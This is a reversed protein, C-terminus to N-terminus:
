ILYYSFAYELVELGDIGWSGMEPGVDPEFKQRFIFLGGPNPSCCPDVDRVETSCSQIAPCENAAASVALSLSLLISLMSAVTVRLIPKADYAQSILQYCGPVM